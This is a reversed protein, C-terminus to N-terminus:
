TVGGDKCEAVCCYSTKDKSVMKRICITENQRKRPQTMRMVIETETVIIKRSLKWWRAHCGRWHSEGWQKWWMSVSQQEKQQCMRKLTNIKHSYKGSRGSEYTEGPRIQPDVMIKSWGFYIKWRDASNWTSRYEDPKDWRNVNVESATKDVDLEM